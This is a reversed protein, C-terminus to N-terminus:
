DGVDGSWMRSAITPLRLVLSVLCFCEDDLRRDRCRVIVWKVGDIKKKHSECECEYRLKQKKKNEVRNQGMSADSTEIQPQFRYSFAIALARDYRDWVRIDDPIYLTDSAANALRGRWFSCSFFVFLCMPSSPPFSHVPIFHCSCSNPYAHIIHMRSNCTIFLICFSCLHCM